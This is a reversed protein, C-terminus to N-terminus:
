FRFNLSAFDYPSRQWPVAIPRFCQRIPSLLSKEGGPSRSEVGLDPRRCPPFQPFIFFFLFFLWFLVNYRSM